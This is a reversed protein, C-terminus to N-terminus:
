NISTTLKARAAVTFAKTHYSMVNLIDYNQVAFDAFMNVHQVSIIYDQM